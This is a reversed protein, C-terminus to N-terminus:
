RYRASLLEDIFHNKREIWGLFLAFVRTCKIAKSVASSQWQNSSCRCDTTMASWVFGTAPDERTWIIRGDCKMWGDRKRQASMSLMHTEFVAVYLQLGTLAHPPLPHLPPRVLFHCLALRKVRRESPALRAGSTVSAM